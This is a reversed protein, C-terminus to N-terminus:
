SYILRFAISCNFHYSFFQLYNTTVRHLLPLSFQLSNTSKRQKSYQICQRHLFTCWIKSVRIAHRLFSGFQIIVITLSYFKYMKKFIKPFLKRSTLSITQDYLKFKGIKYLFKLLSIGVRNSMYVINFKKVNM